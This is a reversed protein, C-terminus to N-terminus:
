RICVSIGKEVISLTNEFQIVVVVYENGIRGGQFFALIRDCYTGSIVGTHREIFGQSDVNGIIGCWSIDSIRGRNSFIDTQGRKDRYYVRRFFCSERFQRGDIRGAIIGMGVSKNVIGMGIFTKFQIAIFQDRILGKILNIVILDFDTSCVAGRQSEVFGERNGNLIESQSVVRNGFVTFAASFDTLQRDSQRVAAIGNM